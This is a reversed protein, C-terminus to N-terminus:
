VIAELEWIPTIFTIKGLKNLLIARRKIEWCFGMFFAAM